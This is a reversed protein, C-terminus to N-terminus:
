EPPISCALPSRLRITLLNSQSPTSRSSSKLRGAGASHIPRATQFKSAHTGRKCGVLQFRHGQEDPQWRGVCRGSLGDLHEEVFCGRQVFRICRPALGLRSCWQGSCKRQAHCIRNLAGAIHYCPAGDRRRHRCLSCTPEMANSRGTVVSYAQGLRKDVLAAAVRDECIAGDGQVDGRLTSFPNAKAPCAADVGRAPAVTGGCISGM